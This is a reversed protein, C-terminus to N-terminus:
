NHQQVAHYLMVLLGAPSPRRSDVLVPTPEKAHDHGTFVETCGKLNRTGSASIV